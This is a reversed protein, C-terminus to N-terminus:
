PNGGGSSPTANEPSSTLPTPEQAGNEGVILEFWNETTGTLTTYGSPTVTEHLYYKGLPLRGIFFVGESDSAMIRDSHNTGEGFNIYKEANDAGDKDKGFDHLTLDYDLLQFQAGPLPKWNNTSDQKEAKRLMVKRDAVPLNVIRYQYHEPVTDTTPILVTFAVTYDGDNNTTVDAPKAMMTATGDANIHTRYIM